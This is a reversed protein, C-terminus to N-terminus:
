RAGGYVDVRPLVDAPSKVRFAVGLEVSGTALDRGWGTCDLKIVTYGEPARVEIVRNWCGIKGSDDIDIRVALEIM